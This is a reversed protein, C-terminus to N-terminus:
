KTKKPAKDPKKKAAGKFVVPIRVVADQNATDHLRLAMVYEGPPLGVINVNLNVFAERNFAHSLYNLKMFNEKGMLINGEKDLLAFDARFGFSYMGDAQKFFRYGVPELYITVRAKPAKYINNPRVKYGGYTLAEGDTLLHKKIYLPTKQWINQSAQDAQMLAKKMDGKAWSASAEKLLDTTQDAGAALPLSLMLCSLAVMLALKKM